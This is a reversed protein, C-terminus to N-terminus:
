RGGPAGGGGSPAGGGPAGGGSPAGGSNMGPPGGQMQQQMMQQLDSSTDLEQGRVMDGENVGSQIEIYSDDSIGTKVEVTKYGEPASDNEDTKEGKVYVTNGRNLSGVPVSLVNEAQDVIIEADVNMGPLLEGYDTISVTVPYSTVGNEATGDVSVKEVVGTFTKDSIADATITVTQGVKVSAVETEDVSIDFQVSSMDYIICMPTTSNSSDIKDGAKNNKTVVTGSIPATITYDNLGKQAKELALRADDLSLQANTIASDQSFQDSSLVAKELALTADDLSLKATNASTKATDSDISAITMGNYVADNASINLSAIKGAADACITHSSIYEFQGADNCAFGNIMATAKDSDTLAGPNETEVTVYRVISNGATTVSGSSVETVTGWLENGTGAVTLTASDGVNIYAADTENFPIRIKMYQSSYVSAIKGGAQVSDGENVFVESVTGNIDSKITLDNLTDLADNYSQQAKEVGIQASQINKDNTKSNQTKTKVADIYNQQAKKLANEATDVSNQPTESDFQYLKDGKEVTDGENIYDATVEGTTITMISYSDKPEITSSGTVKKQITRREVTVDSPQMLQEMKKKSIANCGAFASIIIIIILLIILMKRGIRFKGIFFKKSRKDYGFKKKKEEVKEEQEEESFGSDFVQEEIPIEKEETIETGETEEIM